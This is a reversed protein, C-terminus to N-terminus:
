KHAVSINNELLEIFIRKTKQNCLQQFSKFSFPTCKKGMNKAITWGEETIIDHYVMNMIIPISSMDPRGKISEIKHYLKKVRELTVFKNMYYTEYYTESHKNNGGFTIANEEKFGQTVYKGYELDGFKNVFDLNKIVVGEGVEGLMSKGALEQIQELTPNEIIDFLPVAPIGYKQSVEYVMEIDQREDDIEVDFLYFNKYKMDDYLISHRVLWEGYLRMTPNASFLLILYHEHETIWDTFGNFAEGKEVLDNNRSGYHVTGDAHLWISANAGDVKEQIYCKGLLIGECEEKHLAHIKPYKKFQM